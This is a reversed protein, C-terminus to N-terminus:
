PQPKREYRANLATDAAEVNVRKSEALLRLALRIADSDTALGYRERVTALAARDADDLWITTRKRMSLTYCSAM